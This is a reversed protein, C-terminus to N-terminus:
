WLCFAFKIIVAAHITLLSVTGLETLFSMTLDWSSVSFDMFGM